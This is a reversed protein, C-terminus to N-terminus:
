NEFKTLVSKSMIKGKKDYDESKVVGIGEALWQKSSITRNAGMKLQTDSTIVVCDFSGAPTTITENNVVKRNITKVTMKMNVSAMSMTLLVEADPLTQGPSLNNPIDINTGSMEIEMNMAKYQELMQGSVLSKFDISIGDDNCIINFESSLVSEGKKDFVENALVASNSTVNKVEYKVAGTVKDKKDYTTMEYKVGKKLLYYKSCTNQAYISTSLFLIIFTSFFNRIM